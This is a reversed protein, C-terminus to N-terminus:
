SFIGHMFQHVARYVLHDDPDLDGGVILEAYSDLMGQFTVAYPRHRGTMNGHDAAAQLFLDELRNLRQERHAAVVASAESRAPAHTLM